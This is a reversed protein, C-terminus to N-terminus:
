YNFYFEEDTLRGGISEANYSKLLEFYSNVEEKVEQINQYKLNLSPYSKLTVKPSVQLHKEGLEAALQENQNLKEISIELEKEFAKLLKNNALAFDKRVVLAAQPIRLNYEQQWEKQLDFLVRVRSNNFLTKSVFPERLVATEAMYNIMLQSIERMKGRKVEINKNFNLGKKKVLKQFVIDLPGGKDPVYVSEGILDSWSEVAPDSTLLYFLGWNHIGLLQVEVGKNYLKAAENTSLLALDVKGKMLHSIVINRSRHITTELKFNEAQEQLYFAALSSPSASVSIRIDAALLDGSYLIIIFIIMLLTFALATKKFYLM